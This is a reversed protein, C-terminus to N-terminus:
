YFAGVCYDKLYSMLDSKLSLDINPCCSNIAIEIEDDYDDPDVKENQIVNCKSELKSLIDGAGKPAGDDHARDDYSEDYYYSLSRLVNERDIDGSYTETIVNRIIRRLRSETIRM